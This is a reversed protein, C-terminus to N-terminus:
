RLIYVLVIALMGKSSVPVVVTCPPLVSGLGASM